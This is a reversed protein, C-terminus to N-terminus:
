KSKMRRLNKVHSVTYDYEGPSFATKEDLYVLGEQDGTLVETITCVLRIPKLNGDTGYIAVKDGVKFKTSDEVLEFCESCEGWYTENFGLYNLRGVRSITYIKGMKFNPGSKDFPKLYNSGKTTVYRVKDGVKFKM